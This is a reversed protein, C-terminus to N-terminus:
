RALDMAVQRSLRATAIMTDTLAVVARAWKRAGDHDGRHHMLNARLSMSQILSGVNAASFEGLFRRAPVAGLADLTPGVTALAAATDGVAALLWAEPYLADLTWDAPRITSRVRASKALIRRVAAGDGRTQALEAAILPRLTDLQGLAPSRYVPFALGAGRSLLMRRAVSQQQGLVGNAIGTSLRTEVVRLSDVPGGLAAYAIFARAIGSVDPPAPEHGVNPSREASHAARNADGILAAISAILDNDAPAVPSHVLLSEAFIRVANLESLNGPVATKLRMWTEVVALRLRQSPESSLARARRVTDVAAPFGLLEMAEGLEELADPNQPSQAVRRGAIRNFIEQMRQVALPNGKPPPSNLDDVPRPIFGITDGILEPYAGYLGSDPPAIPGFRIHTTTTILLRRLTEDARRTCCADIRPILTFARNLAVIARHLSGSFSHGSPSRPDVIVEKDRRNCEAVGYWASFDVSDRRLLSDYRTCAARYREMRLDDLAAAHTRDSASLRASGDQARAILGDFGPPDDYMWGRVQALALSAHPFSADARLAASLASDAVVLSWSRMAERGRLYLAFAIRSTTGHAAAEDLRAEDGDYLLEYALHSITSDAIAQGATVSVRARRSATRGTADMAEVRITATGGDTTVDGMVYRGANLSRAVSRGERVTLGTAGRGNLASRLESTGPASVGRWRALADRLRQDLSADVAGGSSTFPLVVYRATDLPQRTVWRILDDIPNGDSVMTAGILAVAIVLVGLGLLQPVGLRKRRGETAASVTPPVDTATATLGRVFERVSGFRDAPVKEMARMVASEVSVSTAKRRTRMAPPPESIHRMAISSATPGTFPPEGVLMEYLVCALAYQDAQPGVIREASAQEPSLYHPTGVALGSATLRDADVNSLALALGFDVLCARGDTLLINEPKVDRHVVAHDHAYQLGEAVDETIKLAAEVSLQKERKLRARLTEGGLYDMVYFLRGDADGSELVSIINPHHLRAAIDIESEFRPIGVENTLVPHLMKIAVQRPLKLDQARYVVGMAGRGLEEEFRYRDALAYEFPGFKGIVDVNERADSLCLPTGQGGARIAALRSFM